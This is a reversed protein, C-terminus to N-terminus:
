ARKDDGFVVQSNRAIYRCGSWVSLVTGAIFIYVGVKLVNGAFNAAYGHFFSAADTGIVPAGLFFGLAILHTVTKTKGGSDASVVVGKSAAVMRMGTILFERCLTILALWVSLQHKDVLAVVIGMVMVKDAMADMLRGFNSVLNRTRALYGDLWDGIAAAVFLVFAITAAGPWGAYMLAVIVFMMPIRSLTIANPLNM